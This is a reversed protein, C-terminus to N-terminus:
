EFALQKPRKKKPVGFATKRTVRHKLMQEMVTQQRTVALRDKAAKYPKPDIEWGIYQRGLGKCAVLTHGSGMYQDAIFQGPMTFDLIIQEMLALPKETHHKRNYKDISHRYHGVKGGGNWVSKGKGCWVTVIHECPQAPGMGTFNASANPKTWICTVWRSAGAGVLADQWTKIATDECFILAWGRTVRVIESAVVIRQESDMADFGMDRHIVKGKKIRRRKDHTHKEFPPDLISHDICNDVLGPLGLTPHLCGRTITSTSINQDVLHISNPVPQIRRNRIAISRASKGM